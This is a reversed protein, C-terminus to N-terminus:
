IQDQIILHWFNHFLIACMQKSSVPCGVVLGGGSFSVKKCIVGTFKLFNYLSGVDLSVCDYFLLSHLHSNTLVRPKNAHFYILYNFLFYLSFKCFVVM